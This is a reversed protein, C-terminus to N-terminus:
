RATGDHSATIAKKGDPLFRVISVWSTHAAMVGMCQGALTNKKELEKTAVSASAHLTLSTGCLSRHLTGGWHPNAATM